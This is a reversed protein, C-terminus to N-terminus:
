SLKCTAGPELYVATRELYTRYLPNGRAPFSTSARRGRPLSQGVGHRHDDRPQRRFATASIFRNYNSQAFNNLETM